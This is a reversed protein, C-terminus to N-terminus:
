PWAGAFSLYLKDNTPGPPDTFLSAPLATPQGNRTFQITEDAVVSGLVVLSLLALLQTSLM